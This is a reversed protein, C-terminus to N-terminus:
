SLAFVYTQNVTLLTNIVGIQLTLDSRLARVDKERFFRWQVRRLANKSKLISGGQSLHPAFKAKKQLFSDITHQFNAVVQLIVPRASASENLHLRRVLILLYQLLYLESILAQYASSAGATEKLAEIVDGVLRIGAVFDGTSFGFAAAM